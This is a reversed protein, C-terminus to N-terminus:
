FRFRDPPDVEGTATIRVRLTAPPSWDRHEDYVFVSGDSVRRLSTAGTAAALVREVAKRQTRNARRESIRTM